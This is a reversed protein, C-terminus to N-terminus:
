KSVDPRKFTLTLDANTKASFGITFGAEIGLHVEISDLHLGSDGHGSPLESNSVIASLKEMVEPWAKALKEADASRGSHPRVGFEQGPLKGTPKGRGKGKSGAAGDVSVLVLDIKSM